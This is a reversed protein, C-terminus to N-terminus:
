QISVEVGCAEAMRRMERKKQDWNMNSELFYGQGLEQPQRMENGDHTPADNIIPHSKGPIYPLPKIESILGHNQILYEVVSTMLSSQVSNKFIEVTQDEIIEISYVPVVDTGSDIESEIDAVLGDIMEKAQRKAKSEIAESVSDTLLDVILASLEHKEDTLTDRSKRLERIRRIKIISEESRITEMCYADIIRNKNPLRQLETQEVADVRISSDVIRRQYFEYKQGNTLIGWRAGGRKLYTAIQERHSSNLTKDLGKAELFAIPQANDDDMLAYDVNLTTRYDEIPYELRTNMPIEWGLLEIFDNLISARTTAEQMQPSNEIISHASEVYEQISTTDM